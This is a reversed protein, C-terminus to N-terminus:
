TNKFRGRRYIVKHVTGRSIGLRLAIDTQSLGYEDPLERIEVIMEPTVKFFKDPHSRSGHTEGQASRGKGHRDHNNDALTGAFLHAYNCCPRNDCHHCVCFGAPIDGHTLMYAVRHARHTKGGAYFQGYGERHMSGMWLWCGGSKDVLSWFRAIDESTFHSPMLVMRETAVGMHQHCLVHTKTNGIIGRKM